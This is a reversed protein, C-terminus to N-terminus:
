RKQGVHFNERHVVIDGSYKALQSRAQEILAPRGWFDVQEDCAGCNQVVHREYSMIRLIKRM